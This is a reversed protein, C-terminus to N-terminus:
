DFKIENKELIEEEIYKDEKKEAVLLIIFAFLSLSSGIVTFSNIDMLSLILFIVSLILSIIFIIKLKKIKKKRNVNSIQTLNEINEQTTEKSTTERTHTQSHMKVSVIAGELEKKSIETVDSMNNRILDLEISQMIEFDDVGMKIVVIPKKYKKAYAVEDAINESSNSNKTLLLICCFCEPHKISATISHKYDVGNFFCGDYTIIIGEDNFIDVLKQVIKNDKSSHMLFAFGM